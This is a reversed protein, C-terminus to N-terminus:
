AKGRSSLTGFACGPRGHGLHVLRHFRALRSKLARRFLSGEEANMLSGPDAEFVIGRRGSTRRFLWRVVHPPLHRRRCGVISRCCITPRSLIFWDILAISGEPSHRIRVDQAHTM